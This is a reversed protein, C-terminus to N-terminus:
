FNNFYNFLSRDSKKVENLIQHIEEHTMDFSRCNKIFTLRELHQQNYVRYNNASREAPPMLQEKEYYRITETSVGTLQSLRGINM